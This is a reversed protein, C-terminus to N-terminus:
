TYARNKREEEVELWLTHDSLTQRARGHDALNTLPRSVQAPSRTPWCLICADKVIVFQMHYCLSSSLKFVVSSSLSLVTSQNLSMAQKNVLLDKGSNLRPSSISFNSISILSKLLDIESQNRYAVGKKM